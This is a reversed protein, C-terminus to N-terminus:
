GMVIQDGAVPGHEPCVKQYRIRSHCGDHLQHLHVPQKEPAASAYAKVRLSVLSVNLSGKWTARFRM